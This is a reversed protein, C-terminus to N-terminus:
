GVNKIVFEIVKASLCILIPPITAMTPRGL